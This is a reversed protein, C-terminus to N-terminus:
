ASSFIQRIKSFVSLFFIHVNVFESQVQVDSTRPLVHLPNDERDQGSSASANYSLMWERKFKRGPQMTTQISSASPKISNLPKIVGTEANDQAENLKVRKQQSPQDIANL